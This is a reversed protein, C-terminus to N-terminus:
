MTGERLHDLCWHAKMVSKKLNSSSLVREFCNMVFKGVRPVSAHYLIRYGLILRGFMSHLV